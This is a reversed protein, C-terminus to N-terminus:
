EEEGEEGYSDDGGGGVIGREGGIVGFIRVRGAGFFRGFELVEEVGDGGGGEVFDEVGVYFFLVLV